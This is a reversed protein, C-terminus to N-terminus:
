YHKVDNRLWREVPMQLDEMVARAANRGPWGTVAGGPHTSAGTQYLGAVPMRYSAWGAAPRNYGAQHGLMVGAQPSGGFFNSNAREIDLPSMVARGLEDGPRFGEVLGAYIEVLRDAYDDKVADWNAPDGDLAYPALTTLKIVGKGAPARSPDIASSCAALLWLGDSSLRGAEVDALQRMIGSQTLTGTLVPQVTGFRTRVTQNQPVALHVNFASPGGEWSELKRSFAQPLDVDPLLRPLATVHMSSIVARRARYSRGDVLRVGVARDGEVIIGDVPASTLIDGGHARIIEGLARPLAASGGVANVWSYKGWLAPVAVAMMGTGPRDIPQGIAGVLWLMLRRVEPHEFRENIVETASRAALLGMMAARVPSMKGLVSRARGVTEKLLSVAASEGPAAPAASMMGYYTPELEVWDACLQHWAEADRISFRAFEAATRRQDHWLTISDGGEIPLVLVPDPALYRLGHQALPLEGDAWAPNAMFGFHGTSFPDHQFGPLTLEATATGGGIVEAAEIVRVSLGAIALYAACILGNHGAGVLVIDCAEDGSM